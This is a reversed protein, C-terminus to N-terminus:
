GERRDAVPVPEPTEVAAPGPEEGPPPLLVEHRELFRNRAAGVIALAEDMTDVWHVLELDRPSALGRAVIQEEVWARLGKWM